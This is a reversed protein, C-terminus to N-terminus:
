YGRGLNRGGGNLIVIQRHFINLLGYFVQIYVDAFRFLARWYGKCSKEILKDGLGLNDDTVDELDKVIHNFSVHTFADFFIRIIGFGNM